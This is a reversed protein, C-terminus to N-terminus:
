KFKFNGLFIDPAGPNNPRDLETPFQEDSERIYYDKRRVFTIELVEPLTVDGIHVLKGCNNGHVHVVCHNKTLKEFVRLMRRRWATQGIRYFAHFECIIQRFRSLIRDDIAFFIEWEAGEIDIKLLLDEASGIKHEYLIDPISIESANSAPGAVIKQRRFKCLKHSVPAMNISHDFQLVTIGRKAIALDWSVDHGIGLSLAKSIGAFDNLMVFGCDYEAGMRIKKIGEVSCPELLALGNKIQAIDDESLGFPGYLHILQILRYTALATHYAARTTHYLGTKRLISKATDPSFLSMSQIIKWEISFWTTTAIVRREM